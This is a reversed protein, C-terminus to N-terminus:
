AGFCHEPIRDKKTPDPDKAKIFSGVYVKKTHTFAM